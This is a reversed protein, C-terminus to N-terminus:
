PDGPRSGGAHGDGRGRQARREPGNAPAQAPPFPPRDWDLGLGALEARLRRLDWLYVFGDQAVALETGDPSFQLVPILGADPAALTAVEALSAPDLLRVDTMTYALGLLGDPARVVPAPSSSSRNLVVAGAAKWLDIRWSRLESGRPSTRSTTTYMLRGDGSFAPSADGLPLDQVLCGTAAEWVRIGRGGDLSGAAVLHGDPSAALYTCNPQAGQWLERVTDGEVHVVRVAKGPHLTVLRRRDRGVWVFDGRLDERLGLLHRPPGLRVGVPVGPGGGRPQVAVRWFGDASTALFATGESEWQGCALEPWCGAERRAAVDWLRQPAGPGSTLLWRGDPSYNLHHIVRDGCRLEDLVSSPEFAWVRARRGTLGAAALGGQTRFNVVRIDPVVLVQRQSGVHWLRLTMDWGFSALWRGSPDFALDQVAWRHGALTGREQWTATDWLHIRQDGCAAALLRGQPAWAVGYMGAPTRLERVTAGSDLDLVRVGAPEMCALALLRGGPHLAVGEVRAGGARQVLREARSPLDIVAVAGGALCAVLTRGDADFDPLAQADPLTVAPRRPDGQLDWVQLPRKDSWQIYYAALYRGDPSFRFSLWRSVRSGPLAPLRCLERHDALRRVSIGEDKYSWAYRELRADFGLGTTGPPNGEWDEERVLDPLALCAIAENRLQVLDEAPRGRAHAIAAAKRLAELGALRQGPLGSRRGAEARARLAEFLQDTAESEAELARGAVQNMRWAAALSGFALVLLLLGVAASLGALAPNRRAWRRLRERASARRARVPRDDLFQRLDEALDAASAYRRQPEKHLCTLCITCLDRPMGPQLQSPSVPEQSRVQELTELATAGRFPPRGTLMEYLVAGLGYVDATPGVARNDGAAQEPAMYSPTGLIAGTATLEPRDQKALGFDTIKATWSDLAGGEGVVPAGGPSPPVAAALLVNAPKLDRHIVGQQHAYHVARALKEVLAAAPRAQQPVGGLRAALSGGPMFELALFPVGVHEGVEHIQVIHPHSLRALADAEALFRARREAGAHAGALVMKLVVLRRPRLQWAKYAVSMGGRGLEEVIDYGEIALAAPASASLPEPGAGGASATDPTGPAPTAGSDRGTRVARRLSDILPDDLTDLRRAAAECDACAQLHEAICRLLREPLDGLLFARLDAESL